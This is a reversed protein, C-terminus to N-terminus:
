KEWALTMHGHDLGDDWSLLITHRVDGLVFELRGPRYGSKELPSGAIPRNLALLAIQMGQIDALLGGIEKGDILSLPALYFNDKRQFRQGVRQTFYLGIPAIWKTPDQLLDVVDISGHLGNTLVEGGDALYNSVAMGVLMKLLWRELDHGSFIFQLPPGVDTTGCKQFAEFFRGAAADLNTLANNHAVCLCNAVLSGFPLVKKEEPKLWPAGSIEVAKEALVRLVSHSIIHEKSIQDACAGTSNLYCKAHKGTRGTHEIQVCSATKKWGNSGYCCDAAPLGSGCICQRGKKRKAEGM